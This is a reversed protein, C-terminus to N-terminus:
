LLGESRVGPMDGRNTHGLKQTQQSVGMLRQPPASIPPHAQLVPPQEPLYATQDFLAGNLEPAASAAVPTPTETFDFASSQPISGWSSAWCQDSTHSSTTALPTIVCLKMFTDPPQPRPTTTAAITAASGGENGNDVLTTEDWFREMDTKPTPM